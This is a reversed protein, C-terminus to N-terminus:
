IGTIRKRTHEEYMEILVILLSVVIPGIVFGSVGFLSIGGLSSLFILLPHMNVDKSVLIPRLLNDISGVVLAGFAIIVIGEWIYGQVLMAIGAPAWVITCGLLPIIAAIVMVFGWILAGEVGTLFFVIGEMTGQLGGIILTAKVTSRATDVFRHYLVDEKGEGLRILSLIRRLFVKGDRFFFFLTYLTVAFNVFFVFLNQTLATLSSLIYGAISRSLESIKDIVYGKDFPLAKLIKEDTVAAMLNNLSRQAPSGETNLAEYIQMSETILLSGLIVAPLFIILVIVVLMLSASLGPRHLRNELWDHLPMFISAIVAAWFIAFFFPKVVAFFLVAAAILLIFFLVTTNRIHEM